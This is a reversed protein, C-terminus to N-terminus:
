FKIDSPFLDQRQMEDETDPDIFINAFPTATYGIYSSKQFKILLDRIGENIRTVMNKNKSTNISANDAEDDILLLSCPIKDPNMIDFFKKLNKLTSTNKKCIFITPESNTLINGGIFATATKLNFDSNLTTGNQPHKRPPEAFNAQVLLCIGDHLSTANKGIFALNM